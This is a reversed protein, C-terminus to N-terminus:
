RYVTLALASFLCIFLSLRVLPAHWFFRYLNLAILLRDLSWTLLAGVALLLLLTPLYLELFMLERPM